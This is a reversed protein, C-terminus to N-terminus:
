PGCRLYVDKTTSDVVQNGKFNTMKFDFEELKGRNSVGGPFFFEKGSELLVDMNASKSVKLHWTGGGARTRVQKYDKLKNDFDMWAFEIGRSEKAANQNGLNPSKRKEEDSYTNGLKRKIKRRLKEM